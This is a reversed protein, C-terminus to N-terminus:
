PVYHGAPDRDTGLRRHSHLIGHSCAMSSNGTGDTMHVWLSPLSPFSGGRSSLCRSVGAEM